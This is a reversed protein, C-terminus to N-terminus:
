IIIMPIKRACTLADNMRGQQAIAYSIEKLEPLFSSSESENLRSPNLLECSVEKTAFSKEDDDVIGQTSELVDKTKYKPSELISIDRLAEDKYFDDLIQNACAMAETIKGRQALEISISRLSTTTQEDDLRANRHGIANQMERAM